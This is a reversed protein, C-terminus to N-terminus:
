QRDKSLINIFNKIEGGFLYFLPCISFHFINSCGKSMDKFFPTVKIISFYENLLNNQLEDFFSEM